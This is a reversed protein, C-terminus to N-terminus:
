PSDPNCPGRAGRRRAAATRWIPVCLLGAGKGAAGPGRGERAHVAPHPRPACHRRLGARAARRHHHHRRRRQRRRRARRGRGRRCRLGAARPHRAHPADDAVHRRHGLAARLRVTRPVAGLDARRPGLGAGGGGPVLRGRRRGLAGARRARRACRRPLSPLLPLRDLALHPDAHLLAQDPDAHPQGRQLRHGGAAGRAAAAATAAGPCMRNCGIVCATVAQVCLTATGLVWPQLLVKALVVFPRWGSGAQLCWELPLSALLDVGFVGGCVYRRAIARPATVVADNENDQYSTRFSALLDLLLVVDLAVHSPYALLHSSSDPLSAFGGQMPACVYAAGLALAILGSWARRSTSDPLFVFCRPRTLHERSADSGFDHLVHKGHLVDGFLAKVPMASSFSLRADPRSARASAQLKALSPRRLARSAFRQRAARQKTQISSLTDM